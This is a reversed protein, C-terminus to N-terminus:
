WRASRYFVVIAPRGARAAHLDVVRGHQDPLRLDPFREGVRPGIWDFDLRPM